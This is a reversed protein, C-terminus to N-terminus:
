IRVIKHQKVDMLMEGERVLIGMRGDNHPFETYESHVFLVRQGVTLDKVKPGVQVIEGTFQDEAFIDFSTKTDPEDRVVLCYNDILDVGRGARKAVIDKYEMRWYPKDLTRCLEYEVPIDSEKQFIVNDGVNIGLGPPCHAVIGESSKFPNDTIVAINGTSREDDIMVTGYREFTESHQKIGVPEILIWQNLMIYESLLSGDKALREIQSDSMASICRKRVAFFLSAYPLLAFRKGDGEWYKGRDFNKKANTITLYSFYVTDGVKLRMDEDPSFHGQKGKNARASRSNIKEPVGCVTAYVNAYQGVAYSTDVYMKGAATNISDIAPPIEVLVMAEGPKM